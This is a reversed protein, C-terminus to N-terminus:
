LNEKIWKRSVIFGSSGYFQIQKETPTKRLIPYRPLIIKNDKKTILPIKDKSIYLFLDRLYGKFVGPYIWILIAEKNFLNHITLHRSFVAKLEILNDRSTIVDYGDKDVFEWEFIHCLWEQYGFKTFLEWQFNPDEEFKKDMYKKHKSLLVVGADKSPGSRSKEESENM